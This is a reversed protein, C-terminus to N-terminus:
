RFRGPQSFGVLEPRLPHGFAIRQELGLGVGGQQPDLRLFVRAQVDHAIALLRALVEHVAEEFLDLADVELVLHLHADAVVAIVRHHRLHDRRQAELAAHMGEFGLQRARM